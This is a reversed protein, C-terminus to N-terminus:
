VKEPSHLPKPMANGMHMTSSYLLVAPSRVVGRNTEKSDV